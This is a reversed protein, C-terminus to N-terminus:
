PEPSSIEPRAFIVNRGPKVGPALGETLCSEEEVAIVRLERNDEFGQLSLIDEVKVGDKSGLSVRAQTGRSKVETIKGFRLREQLYALWPAPVDPLGEARGSANSLYVENRPVSGTVIAQCFRSVQDPRLLYSREDWRVPVLERDVKRENPTEPTLVITGEVEGVQGAERHCVGVCGSWVFSYRGDPLISLNWTRGRGNNWYYNGAVKALNAGAVVKLPYRHSRDQDPDPLLLAVLVGVIALVVLIEILNPKWRM